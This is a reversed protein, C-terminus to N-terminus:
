QRQYGVKAVLRGWAAHSDRITTSFEEPGAWRPEVGGNRFEERVQPLAMVGRVADSLRTVVEAPMRTPGILGLSTDMDMGAIGLESLTALEPFLASRAPAIVGLLRM